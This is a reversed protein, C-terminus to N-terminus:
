HNGNRPFRSLHGSQVRRQRIPPAVSEAFQKFGLPRVVLRPMGQGIAHDTVRGGAFDKETHKQKILGQSDRQRKQQDNQWDYFAFVKMMLYTFPHPIRVRAAYKEGNSRIGHLPIEQTKEDIFLAERTIRAHFGEVRRNRACIKKVRLHEKYADVNGILFDMKIDGNQIKKTWQMYRWREIVDYNDHLTDAIPQVQQQDCLVDIPIFIDIDGTARPSYKKELLTREQQMDLYHKKLFLGFGGAITLPTKMGKKELEFLFDLLHTTLPDHWAM